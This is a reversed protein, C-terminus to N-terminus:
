LGAAARWGPRIAYCAGAGAWPYVRKGVVSRGPRPGCAHHPGAAPRTRLM